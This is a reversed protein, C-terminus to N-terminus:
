LQDATGTPLGVGVARFGVRCGGVRLGNALDLGLFTVTRRNPGDGPEIVPLVHFGDSSAVGIQVHGGVDDQINDHVMAALTTLVGPDSHTAALQSHLDLFAREGSGLLHFRGPELLLQGIVMRLTGDTKNPAIAFGRYERAVPCFGFILAEFVVDRNQRSSMDRITTEGISRLLEAVAEVPVSYMGESEDLLNQTCATLVAHSSVAALTSGAFAFGLSHRHVVDFKPGGVHKHCLIPVPLIKSAADTLAAFNGTVRADSACWLEQYRERYWLAVITM